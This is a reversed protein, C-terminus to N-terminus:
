DPLLVHPNMVGSPDLATKIARFPAIALGLETLVSQLADAM